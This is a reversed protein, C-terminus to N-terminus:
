MDMMRLNLTSSMENRPGISSYYIWLTKHKMNFTSLVKFVIHVDVHVKLLRAKVNYRDIM